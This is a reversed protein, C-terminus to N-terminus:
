HMPQAKQFDLLLAQAEKLQHEAHEARERWQDAEQAAQRKDHLLLELM